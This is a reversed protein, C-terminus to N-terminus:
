RDCFKFNNLWFFSFGNIIFMFRGCKGIDLKDLWIVLRIVRTIILGKPSVKVKVRVRCRVGFRVM